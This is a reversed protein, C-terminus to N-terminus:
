NTYFKQINKSFTNGVHDVRVKKRDLWGVLEACAFIIDFHGAQGADTVYIIWDAREDVIRQRIAAMDSTDYTYGGDSKIVTLPVSLNPAFMVKRGEDEQLVGKSEM